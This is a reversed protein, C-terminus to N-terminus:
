IVIKEIYMMLIISVTNESLKFYKIMKKVICSVTKLIIGDVNCLYSKINQKKCEELLRQVTHSLKEQVHIIVIDHTTSTDKQEYFSTFNKVKPNKFTESM